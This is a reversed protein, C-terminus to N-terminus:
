RDIGRSARHALYEAVVRPLADIDIPKSMYGDCGAAFAKQDDGKMAYATLAIIVIERRAPDAKLRRTLELGDMRPLQLDMLILSPTFSDLIRLADEADIATRVEYGEAALIVKALKLNQPNDDVILVPESAM